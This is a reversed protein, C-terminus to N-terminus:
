GISSVAIPVKAFDPYFNLIFGGFGRGQCRRRRGRNEEM